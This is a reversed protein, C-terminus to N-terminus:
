CLPMALAKQTIAGRGEGYNKKREKQGTRFNSFGPPDPLHRRRARQKSDTVRSM